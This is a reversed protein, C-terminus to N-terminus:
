KVAAVFGRRARVRLAPRQVEVTISHWRGDNKGTTPYGLSYQQSLEDSIGATAPDLDRPSRVIETRGGSDDTIERLAEVNVHDGARSGRPMTPSRPGSPPVRRPMPFPFPFAPPAQGGGGLVSSTSRGDIGIAYVLVESERIQQKVAAVTAESDTDNGDSIILLAKKRYRGSQALPIAEAVADYMATGGHPVLRRLQSQMRQRNTTWGEVLEPMNSFRYLFVEDQPDLLDVLFRTLAERAAEMKEGDMSGSTDVAIGLSVPVREASFHTLPQEQGDEFVRFDEQRLGRVFRGSADTVTATVNILEVASRFKFHQKDEQPPTQQAGLSVVAAAALATVIALRPHLAM